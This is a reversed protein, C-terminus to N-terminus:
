RCDISASTMKQLISEVLGQEDYPRSVVAVFTRMHGAQFLYVDAQEQSIKVYRAEGLYEESEKIMSMILQTRLTMLRSTEDDPTPTGKKVYFATPESGQLFAAIIVEPNVAAISDCLFHENDNENPM